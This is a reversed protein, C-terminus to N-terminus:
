KFLNQFIDADKEASIMQENLNNKNFKSESRNKHLWLRKCISFTYTTLASKGKYVGSKVNQYTIMVAEQLVDNIEVYGEDHKGVFSVLKPFCYDYLLELAQKQVKPDESLLDESRPTM